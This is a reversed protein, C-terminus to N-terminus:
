FLGDLAGAVVAAFGAVRGRYEAVIIQGNAIQAPPVHLANPDALLQDRYEPVDLSAHAQLDELQDHEDLRARRLVITEAPESMVELLMRSRSLSVRELCEPAM